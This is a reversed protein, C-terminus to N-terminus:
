IHILSLYPLDEPTLAHENSISIIADVGLHNALEAYEVIQDGKIDNSESKAEFFVSWSLKGRECIAIGDPRGSPLNLGNFEPEMFSYYKSVKGAGFGAEKLIEGRLDPVIEMAGMLISLLRREVKKHNPILCAPHRNKLLSIINSM